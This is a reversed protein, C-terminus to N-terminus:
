CSSPPKTPASIVGTLYEVNRAVQAQTDFPLGIIYAAHVVIGADHWERLIDRYAEVKNQGKSEVKLNQPNLHEGHGVFVQTCGAEAALRVFEPAQPGPGGADHLHDLQRGGEPPPHAGRRKGGTSKGAFDDDTFFYFDIGRRRYNDRALTVIAEPSRERITRGQVNIISCFSCTFPCGRSTEVTGFPSSRAFHRM